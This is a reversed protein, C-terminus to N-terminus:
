PPAPRALPDARRAVVVALVVTQTAGPPLNFPGSSLMFRQDAALADVWGTGAVPDGALMFPTPHSDPDLIVGGQTTLGHMLNFSEAGSTPGGGNVYRVFATAPLRHGLAASFPGQLLDYGVAPPNPGYDLDSNTANYAYGLSRTSDCGVLDDQYSGVDPDVWMGLYTDALPLPGRNIFKYEVFVSSGLVGPRDYAWTTQQVEVQLANTAGPAASHASPDLDNFVSWGMQDGPISLSGDQLMVNVIPAGRPVANANYDALAADREQPTPYTRLLKYVHLEPLQWSENIGGAASGPRYEFTYEAVAVRPAGGVTAGLWPGSAFVVGTVTSGKPYRIGASGIPVDYGFAGVNS